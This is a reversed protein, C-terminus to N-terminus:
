AGFNIKLSKINIWPTHEHHTQGTREGISLRGFYYLHLMQYSLSLLVILDDGSLRISLEIEVAIIDPKISRLPLAAM